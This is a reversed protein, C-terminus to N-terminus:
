REGTSGLSGRNKGPLKDTAIFECAEMKKQIRFQAIRTGRKIRPQKPCLFFVSLFWEDDPGCFSNDIVGISNTQIFGYKEFSSGRPAIIAEYGPPLAMRIGLPIIQHSGALSCVDTACRLDVWDGVEIHELDEHGETYQVLINM